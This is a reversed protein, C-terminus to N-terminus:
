EATPILQTITKNFNQGNKTCFIRKYCLIFSFFIFYRKINEQSPINNLELENELQSIQTMVEKHKKTKLRNEKFKNKIGSKQFDCGRKERIQDAVSCM